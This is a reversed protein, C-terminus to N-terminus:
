SHVHKVDPARQEARTLFGHWPASDVRDVTLSESAKEILDCTEGLLDIGEFRTSVARCRAPLARDEFLEDLQGVIHGAIYRAPEITRAVGLRGLTAANDHQDHAFPTILQPIGAAMAQACTGIGGHHVLAACRPLLESFPAYEVHMVGPPLSRPVQETHRTLLLGRRGIMDCARASERFFRRGNWMASGPTFAIPRSGADLFRELSEPLRSLGREDYLPFQTLRVQPPWDPAPPAFWAPFLGIVRQPSNIYRTMIRDVPPLGLEKRLANIPPAIWPDCIRDLMRLQARRAWTPLWKPTVIGGLQPPHMESLLISPQLHVTVTPIGLHDQAIRAGLGLSSAVVVANGGAAEAVVAEYVPRMSKGLSRLATRTGKLRRWLDPDSAMERYEDATGVGIAAVGTQEVLPTFYGQVIMRVAHGRRQLALAIGLFPHVDGHSGLAVLIVKM